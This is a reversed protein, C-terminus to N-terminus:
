DNAHQARLLEFQADFRALNAKTVPFLMAAPAPSDADSYLWLVIDGAGERFSSFVDEPWPVYVPAGDPMQYTQVLVFAPVGHTKQLYAARWDAPLDDTHWVNIGAYTAGMLQALKGPRSENMAKVNAESTTM